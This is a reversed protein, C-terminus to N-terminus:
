FLCLSVKQPLAEEMFGISVNRYLACRLTLMKTGRCLEFSDEVSHHFLFSAIGNRLLEFPRLHENKKKLSMLTCLLHYSLRSPFISILLWLM